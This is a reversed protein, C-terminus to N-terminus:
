SAVYSGPLAAMISRARSSRTVKVAKQVVKRGERKAPIVTQWALVTEGKKVPHPVRVKLCTGLALAPNSKSKEDPFIGYGLVQAGQSDDSYDRIEKLAPVITAEQRTIFTETATNETRTMAPGRETHHNLAM